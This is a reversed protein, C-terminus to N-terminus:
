RVSGEPTRELDARARSITTQISSITARVSRQLKSSEFGKSRKQGLSYVAASEPDWAIESLVPMEMVRRAERPEYPMGPGVLLGQLRNVDGARTFAERLDSSWSTVGVLGPLHTRTVVLTLDAETLLEFPMGELGLRGADVIVDQGNAELDKLTNALPKWLPGLARAQNHRLPGFLVQAQSDRVQMLATPLSGILDGRRHAIALEVITTRVDLQGRFYGSLIARGGTPDADVLVVPRPWSMALGVATTTVGPSGNASTLAILAM